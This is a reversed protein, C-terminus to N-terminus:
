KVGRVNKWCQDIDKLMGGVNYLAWRMCQHKWSTRKESAFLIFYFEMTKWQQKSMAWQGKTIGMTRWTYWKPKQAQIFSVDGFRFTTDWTSIILVEKPGLSM